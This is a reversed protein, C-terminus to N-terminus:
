ITLLKKDFRLRDAITAIFESNTPKARDFAVSNGFIEEMLDYDGRTWSVEIAHRIAREVRSATTSYRIAVEPYIEKTIGSYADNNKYFLFVSERIYTYGKIHSPIGLQHLLKSIAVHVIRENDNLEAVKNFEKNGLELIRTELALMSFPKLMYYSVGYNNTMNITYEKKYSTIVITKKKINQEQMKQLITLGDIDPLILDMVIIDFEYKHNLIYDLAVNGNEITKVVKIVAHSSFQKEIRATINQNNDVVLVRTVNEM